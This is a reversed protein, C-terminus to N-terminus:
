VILVPLTPPEPPLTLKATVPPRGAPAVATKLGINTPTPPDAVKVIVVDVLELRPGYLTIIVPV